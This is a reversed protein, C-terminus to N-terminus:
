VHLAMSEPHREMWAKAYPCVPDVKWGRAKAEDLAAKVLSGAIGRGGLPEPVETHLITMVNGHLRYALEATQGETEVEFRHSEPQHQVAPTM